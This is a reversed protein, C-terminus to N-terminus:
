ATYSDQKLGGGGWVLSHPLVPAVARRDELASVPSSKQQCKDRSFPTPVTPMDPNYIFSSDQLPALSSTVKAECHRIVSFNIM